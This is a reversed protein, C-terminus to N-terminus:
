SGYGPQPPAAAPAPEVSPWGPRPAAGTGRGARLVAATVLLIGLVVLPAGTGLLWGAADDLAPFTAGVAVTATVGRSGDANLVVVTWDGSEPEWELSQPGSGSTSAVWIDAEGPPTTPATGPELRYRPTWGGSQEELDELVAHEVGALYDRAADERAVGVFVPTTASVDVRVEGLLSAPSLSTAGTDLDLPASALAYGGTSLEQAPTTFYGADDRLGRDAVAAATGALLLGSGLALLLSGLVVTVVPGGSWAAPPATAAASRPDTAGADPDQGGQDLRFPPYRDTMLATYGAVRLVWRNLGLVLDFVQRPYRGTFLLVVAAVLVLLGILGTGPVLTTGAGTSWGLGLASGGVLIGVVLYHPIALLWWKVLVLGRSLSQPYEVRLHAPYDPVEALTFPPYRDTGLASYAYFAVRWSWRMVGVNFAFITRPYRGTVLIAVFAGLSLVAFALWLLVLVVYHPLVLLWKVLWRWRSVATDLTADVHVPSPTPQM